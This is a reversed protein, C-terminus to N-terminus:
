PPPPAAPSAQAASKDVFRSGPKLRLQGDTVVREGAALGEAIVADDGYTREVVVARDAVTGDAQAVFVYAGKQGNQVARQPVTVAGTQVRLTIVVNVLQGPWLRGDANEFEAWLKITGTTQDVANDVLALRGAVPVAEAGPVFADVRPPAAAMQAMVSPLERQPVAFAVQIPHIQNIVVLPGGNAQVVNGFDILLDGTRGAIPSRIASYGVKLRAGQITAKDARVVAALADAKARANEYQEQSILKQELLAKQREAEAAANEAQVQDRALNAESLRKEARAPRGDVTFLLDGAEVEQGPAFHVGVLVGGIQSRIAVTAQPAVTGFAKIEIPVDKLVAEALLVPAPPEPGGPGGGGPKGVAAESSGNCGALAALILLLLTNAAPKMASFSDVATSPILVNTTARADGTPSV